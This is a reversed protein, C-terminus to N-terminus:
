SLTYQPLHNGFGLDYLMLRTGSYRVQSVHQSEKLLDGILGKAGLSTYILRVECSVELRQMKFIQEVFISASYKLCAACEGKKKM